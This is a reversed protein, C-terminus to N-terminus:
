KDEKRYLEKALHVNLRQGYNGMSLPTLPVTDLSVTFGEVRAKRMLENLIREWETRRMAVLEKQTIDENM